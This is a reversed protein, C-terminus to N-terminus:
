ILLRLSDEFNMIGRHLRQRIGGGYGQSDYTVVFLSTEFRLCYFITVLGVPSTSGLIFASAFALLLQLHCIWGRTPSFTLYPSHGCTNLQSFFIQDHTELPEAGLRVSQRYIALRITVRVRVRARVEVNMRSIFTRWLLELHSRSNKTRWEDRQFLLLDHYLLSRLSDYVTMSQLSDSDFTITFFHWFIWDDFRSAVIIRWALGWCTVTNLTSSDALRSVVIFSWTQRKSGTGGCCRDFKLLSFLTIDSSVYNKM